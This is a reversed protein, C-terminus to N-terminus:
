NSDAWEDSFLGSLARQSIQWLECIRGQVVLRCEGEEADWTPNVEFASERKTKDYVKSYRIVEIVKAGKVFKVIKWSSSLPRGEPKASVIVCDAKNKVDFTYGGSLDTDLATAEEVNEVLLDRLRPFTTDVNCEARRTVWNRNSLLNARRESNTAWDAALTSADSGRLEAPTEVSARTKMALRVPREVSLGNFHRRVIPKRPM